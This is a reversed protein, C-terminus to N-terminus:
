WGIAAGDSRPDAGGSIVGDPSITIAHAHGMIGDFAKMRRVDHGARELQAIVEGAIRSEVKLEQTQAGMHPGM